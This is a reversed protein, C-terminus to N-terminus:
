RHRWAGGTRRGDRWAAAREAPPRDAEIARALRNRLATTDRDNPAIAFAHEARRLAGALDGQQELALALNYAVVANRDHLALAQEYAAIATALDNAKRADAARKTWRDVTDGEGRSRAIRFLLAAIVVPVLAVVPLEFGPQGGVIGIAAGALAGGVHAANDVGPALGYILIVALWQAMANRTELDGHLQADVGAAAILGCIAGSAGVCVSFPNPAIVARVVIKWMSYDKGLGRVARNRRRLYSVV